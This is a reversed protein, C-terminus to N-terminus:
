CVGKSFHKRCGAFVSRKSPSLFLVAIITSGFCPQLLGNTVDCIALKWFANNEYVSESCNLLFFFYLTSNKKINRPLITLFHQMKVSFIHLAISIHQQAVHDNM